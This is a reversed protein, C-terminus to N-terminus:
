ERWDPDCNDDLKSQYEKVLNDPLDSAEWWEQVDHPFFRHILLYEQNYKRSKIILLKDETINDTLKKLGNIPDKSLIQFQPSELWFLYFHSDDRKLCYNWTLFVQYHVWLYPLSWLNLSIMDGEKYDRFIQRRPNRAHPAIIIPVRVICNEFDVEGRNIDFDWLFEDYETHLSPSLCALNNHDWQLYDYKSIQKSFRRPIIHNCERTALNSIVCRNSYLKSVKQKYNGM